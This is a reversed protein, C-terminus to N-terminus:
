QKVWRVQRVCAPPPSFVGTCIESAEPIEHKQSLGVGLGSGGLEAINKESVQGLKKPSMPEIDTVM